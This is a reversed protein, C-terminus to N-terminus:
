KYQTDLLKTHSENNKISKEKLRIGSNLHYIGGKYYYLIQFKSMYKDKDTLKTSKHKWM